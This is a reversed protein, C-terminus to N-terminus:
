ENNAEITITGVEPQLMQGYVFLGALAALALVILIVVFRV